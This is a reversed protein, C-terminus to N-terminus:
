NATPVKEVHDVVLIKVEGRKKELSLGLQDKLAEFITPGSPYDPPATLPSGPQAASASGASMPSQGTNWSLTFDYKGKLGTGDHVPGRVQGTLTTSAFHEMTEDVAQMRARGNMMLTGRRGAHLEPYGESDRKLSGPGMLADSPPPEQYGKSEKLKPGNKAVVLEYLSMEKTDWHVKLEFREALLRQLMLHFQEKTAGEPVTAAINFMSTKMWDPVSLQWHSIEYAMTVLNFLSFNAATFRGPDKSGPGGNVFVRIGHMPDAVAAPRISAVEFSPQEAPAQGRLVLGILASM